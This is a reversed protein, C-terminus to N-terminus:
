CSEVRLGTRSSCLQRLISTSRDVSLIPSCIENSVPDIDPFVAADTPAGPILLGRARLFSLLATVAPGMPVPHSDFWADVMM